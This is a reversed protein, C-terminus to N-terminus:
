EPPATMARQAFEPRVLREYPHPRKVLGGATLIDRMANYGDIGIAPSSAWAGLAKYQAVSREIVAPPFEPFFPAVRAAIEPAASSALWQQAKYFGRAFRDIIHPTTEIFKPAAAFSSYCLYGHERGLEAALYGEGDAILAQAQPNPMHIYDAHGRRFAALADDASLGSIMRIKDINVGRKRLAASLSTLPVPTFGIPILAAGELDRWRWDDAPTRGILFFGDGRNIEAIHLPADPEGADLAMMSRSIGTQVIDVEARRLMDVASKGAPVNGFMVDLGEAYLFGGAAAAYIPAYFLNRYTTMLRLRYPRQPQTM